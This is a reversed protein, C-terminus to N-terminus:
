LIIMICLLIRLTSPYEAVLNYFQRNSRKVNNYLRDLGWAATCPGIKETRKLMLTHTSDPFFSSQARGYMVILESKFHVRKMRVIQDILQM